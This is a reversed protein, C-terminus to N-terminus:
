HLGAQRNDKVVGLKTYNRQHFCNRDESLPLPFEYSWAEVHRSRFVHLFPELLGYLIRMFHVAFLEGRMISAFEITTEM